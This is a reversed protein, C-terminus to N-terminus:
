GLFGLWYKKKPPPPSCMKMSECIDTAAIKVYSECDDEPKVQECSKKLVESTEVFKKCEGCSYFNNAYVIAIIAFLLIFEKM